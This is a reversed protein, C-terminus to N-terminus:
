KRLALGVAVALSSSAAKLAQADINTTINIKKFPDWYEVAIGLTNALADKLGASLSGGGSLFIKAVTSASQSEYYDFSTRIENALSSSAREQGAVVQIDRSLRPSGEELINLNSFNAGINLLAMAKNKINEDDSYNFNFANILALLDIDIINLKLGADEISKMLKNVLDKKVAAVLVLMKNDPLNQKLICGDINVESIPFPIHKEAEFKLSAKLEAEEMRPFSVYRIIVSPGSVSVNCAAREKVPAATKLVAALDSEIPQLKFDALEVGKHSLKLKVIKVSSSGIDLGLSFREKPM